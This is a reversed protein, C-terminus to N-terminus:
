VLAQPWPHTEDSWRPTQRSWWRQSPIGFMAQQIQLECDNPEVLALLPRKAQILCSESTPNMHVIKQFEPWWM